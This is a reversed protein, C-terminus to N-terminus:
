FNNPMGGLLQGSNSENSSGRLVANTDFRGQDDVAQCGEGELVGEGTKGLLKRIKTVFLTRSIFTVANLCLISSHSGSDYGGFFYFNGGDFIAAFSFLRKGVPPETINSWSGNEFKESKRSYPWSSGVAVIAASLTIVQHGVSLYSKSDSCSTQIQRHDHNSLAIESFIELPGTSRRCHKYNNSDGFCLFIFQNSMVSCSGMHHDFSLVGIRELRYDSLRSIQRKVDKGGFIYFQNQWTVSCAYNADTDDYREFCRLKQQEGASNILM